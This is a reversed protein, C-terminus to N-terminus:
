EERNKVKAMLSKILKRDKITTGPVEVGSAVDIGSPNLALARQVNEPNVGGALFWQKNQPPTFHDWCFCKGTGGSGSDFLLYDASEQSDEEVKGLPSVKISSICTYDKVLQQLHAKAKEGHLQITAIKLYQCCYRIQELTHDVFVAVPIIGAIKAEATIEKAEKLSIFRRSHEWLIIGIMSAGEEAAALADEPRTIGCIKVLTKEM